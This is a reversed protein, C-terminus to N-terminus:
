TLYTSCGVVFLLCVEPLDDDDKVTANPWHIEVAICICKFYRTVDSNLNCELINIQGPHTSKSV